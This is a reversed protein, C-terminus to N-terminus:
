AQSIVMRFSWNGIVMENRVIQKFDFESFGNNTYFTANGQTNTYTVFSIPHSKGSQDIIYPIVGEKLMKSGLQQGKSFQDVALFELSWSHDKMGSSPKHGEEQLNLFGLLRFLNVRKLLNLGGSLIYDLIGISPTNPRTIIAYSKFKGDEEGLICESKNFHAKLYVHQFHSLFDIFSEKNKFARRLECFIPYESFTLACMHAIDKLEKIEPKRYKIM